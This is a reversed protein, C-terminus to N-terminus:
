PLPSTPTLPPSSAPPALSPVACTASPPQQPRLAPPTLPSLHEPYYPDDDDLFALFAAKAARVGRNMAESRGASQALNVLRVDRIEPSKGGDNVVVIEAPYRSARISDVAQHLLAPRDKTRVVVSVPLPESEVEISPPAGAMERLASFPITRLSPLAAVWYGEVSHTSPDVTM